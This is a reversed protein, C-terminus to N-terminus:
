SVVAETELLADCIRVPIGRFYHVRKGDVNEYTLGGGAIVDDRRQIDLMQFCTRNMYFVLNSVGEFPIRLIAKIMLEVLDAASSKAVLNSIDINPIRVCYRWDRLALGMCWKWHDRYAQMRTGSGIGNASEITVEGLNRHSLGASTGKPYIMHASHAGWGVLWISSNDSQAGSETIVNSGNPATLSSYRPSLGTFEEPTLGANGYFVTQAAEQTMSELFASSESLRFEREDGNMKALAVDIEMYAELMGTAERIQATTSKSPPVGANMMRWAVAPLGTRVSTLETTGDNCEKFLADSVIANSQSLMEVIKMTKGSSDVRKAHDLLSLVTSNLTAM